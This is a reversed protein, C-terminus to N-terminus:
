ITEFMKSKDGSHLAYVHERVKEAWYDATHEKSFAQWPIEKGFTFTITKGRQKYMEDPLFFMEINAKIGLRKRWYAFNYFFDSNKAEIYVPVVNKQYQVAKTVFSKKWKLDKIVKGDQRRSVLGAPFILLCEDSAYAEEFRKTYEGSNKGHKNVPIFIPQYNKLVMLLDNVFFKVDKRHEGVAKILAIGDLGGLPHNSAIIVGGQEPINEGGVVKITINFEVMTADVFDHGWKDGHRKVADNLDDQHITRKIYNLIFRPLFRYLKPNKQSLAKEVDIFRDIKNELSSEAKQESM